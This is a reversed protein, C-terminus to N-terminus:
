SEVNMLCLKIIFILRAQKKFVHGESAAIFSGDLAATKDVAPTLAVFESDIAVIFGPRPAETLMDLPRFRKPLLQVQEPVFSQLLRL